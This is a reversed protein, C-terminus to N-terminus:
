NSTATSNYALIGMYLPHVDKFQSCNTFLDTCYQNLRTLNFIHETPEGSTKIWSTYCISYRSTPSTFVSPIQSPKAMCSGKIMTFLLGKEWWSEVTPDIKLMRIYRNGSDYIWINGGEDVGLSTPQNLKSIGIPGDKFGSTGCVGALTKVTETELDLLRICNNRTDAIILYRTVLDSPLSSPRQKLIYIQSSTVQTSLDKLICSDAPATNGDGSVGCGPDNLVAIVKRSKDAALTSPSYLYAM